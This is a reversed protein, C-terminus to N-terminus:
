NTRVSVPRAVPLGREDHSAATASAVSAVYAIPPLSYEAEVVVESPRSLVETAGSLVASGTAVGLHAPFAPIGVAVISHAIISCFGGFLGSTIGTGSIRGISGLVSSQDHPAPDHHNIERLTQVLAGVGGATLPNIFSALGGLLSGALAGSTTERLMETASVPREERGASSLTWIARGAGGAVAGVGGSTVSAGLLLNNAASGAINVCQFLGNLIAPGYSAALLGTLMGSIIGIGLGIFKDGRRGTSHGSIAGTVGGIGGGIVGGVLAATGLTNISAIAAANTTGASGVTAALSSTGSGSLTVGLLPTHAYATAMAAHYAVPLAVGATLASAALVGGALIGAYVISPPIGTQKSFLEVYSAEESTAPRPQAIANKIEEVIKLQAALCTDFKSLDGKCETRAAEVLAVLAMKLEKARAVTLPQGQEEQPYIAAVAAGGYLKNCCSVFHEKAKEHSSELVLDSVEAGLTNEHLEIKEGKEDFIFISSAVTGEEDAPFFPAIEAEIQHYIASIEARSLAKNSSVSSTIPALAESTDKGPTGINPSGLSSKIESSAIAISSKSKQEGISGLNEHSIPFNKGSGVSPISDSM